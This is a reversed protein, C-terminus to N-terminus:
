KAGWDEWAVINKEAIAVGQETFWGGRGGGWTADYRADVWGTRGMVLVHLSRGDKPPLTEPKAPNVSIAGSHGLRTKDNLTM